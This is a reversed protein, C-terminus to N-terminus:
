VPNTTSDTPLFDRTPMLKSFVTAGSLKHTIEELSPPKYYEPMIAKNLDKPDLGIRDLGITIQTYTMSNVWETPETVPAIIGQEIMRDLEKEIKEQYEIPTKRMAHQVPQVNPDTVINYEGEFNGIVDFQKPYKRKLDAVDYITINNVNFVEPM